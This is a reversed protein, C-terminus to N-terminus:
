ARIEGSLSLHWFDLSYSVAVQSLGLLIDMVKTSLFQQVLIRWLVLADTSIVPV